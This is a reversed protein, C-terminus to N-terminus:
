RGIVSMVSRDKLIGDAVRKNANFAISKVLNIIILVQNPFKM